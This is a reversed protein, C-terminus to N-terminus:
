KSKPGEINLWVEAVYTNLTEKLYTKNLFFYFIITWKNAFVKKKFNVIIKSKLYILQANPMWVGWSQCIYHSKRIFQTLSVLFVLFNNNYILEWIWTWISGGAKYMLVNKIKLNIWHIQGIIHVMYILLQFFRFFLIKNIYLVSSFIM